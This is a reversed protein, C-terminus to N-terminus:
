SNYEPQVIILFWARKHAVM